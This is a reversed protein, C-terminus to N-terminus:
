LICIYVNLYKNFVQVKNLASNTNQLTSLQGRMDSINADLQENKRILAVKLEEKKREVVQRLADTEKVLNFYVHDKEDIDRMLQDTDLDTMAAM